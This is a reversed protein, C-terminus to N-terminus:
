QISKIHHQLTSTIRLSFLGRSIVLHSCFYDKANITNDIDFSTQPLILLCNRGGIIHFLLLLLNLIKDERHLAEAKHNMMM